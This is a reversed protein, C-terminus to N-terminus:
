GDSKNQPASKKAKNEPPATAKELVGADVLHRVDAEKAEREDGPMYLRDGMHQRIVKFKM